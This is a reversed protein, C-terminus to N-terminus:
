PVCGAFGFTFFALTLFSNATAHYLIVITNNKQTPIAIENIDPLFYNFAIPEVPPRNCKKKIIM